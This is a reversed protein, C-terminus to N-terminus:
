KKLEKRIEKYNPLFGEVIKWFKKSHNKEKLHCVEHIIVYELFKKPIHLLKLNLVIKQSRTCSGRKSKLDKITLKEYPIGLLDSYQDTLKKSEDFLFNKLIKSSTENLSTKSIKEGFIYVHTETVTEIKLDKHKEKKDLLIKGKDLLKKEFEKDNKLRAPISLKLKGDSDIRVYGHKIKSYKVLYEM